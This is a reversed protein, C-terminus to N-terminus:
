FIFQLKDLGSDKGERALVAALLEQLLALDAISGLALETVGLRPNQGGCGPGRPAVPVDTPPLFYGLSCAGGSRTEFVVSRQQV